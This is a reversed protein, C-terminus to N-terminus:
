EAGRQLLDLRPVQDLVAQDRLQDPAQGHNGGEVVERKRNRM